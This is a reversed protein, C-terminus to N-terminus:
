GASVVPAGALAALLGVMGASLLTPVVGRRLVLLAVAALSLLMYQWWVALAAALPVAAGLIAGAAPPAAGPLFVQLGADALLRAWGAAGWLGV